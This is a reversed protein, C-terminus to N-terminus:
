ANGLEDGTNKIKMAQKYSEKIFLTGVAIIENQNNIIIPLQERENAIIKHDILLRSVKKHGEVGNLKFKDGDKRTRVTLPFQHQPMAKNIEINYHGFQYMDPETITVNNLQQSYNAMVIFKDYAIHIIWKESSYLISQSVNESLQRLWDNYTKESFALGTHLNKLAEDLVTIQLSYDLANFESRSIYLPSTLDDNSSIQLFAQARKQLHLLQEDHWVKLKLLQQANLQANQEIAPLIRNRIDNRVYDNQHNTEDEYFPVQYQTQYQHIYQKSVNLLPRVIKYGERWSVDAIGLSSRTSKGTMLRYFITEIQDDQHHATLLVDGGLAKMQKDFWDYRLLRAENEISKGEDVIHSLNLTKTHLPINLDRCYQQIFQEEENSAHRLGHNVHLCTLKRYSAKLTTSLLHLLVMSDIGTSVALVIHSNDDWETTNVEM